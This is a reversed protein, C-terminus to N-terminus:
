DKKPKSNISVVSSWWSTATKADDRDADDADLSTATTTGTADPAHAFNNNNSDHIERVRMEVLVHTGLTIWGPRELRVVELGPVAREAARVVLEVDRNWWCGFRAFHQRASRDLLGNVLEYWSRGHELLVIRGTEPKVAAAMRSLLLIPDRVSCLGFTQIVTDYKEPNPNPQQNSSSSPPPPPPPPLAIQADAKLLRIRNNALSIGEESGDATKSALRSFIPKKPIQEVMFPVVQRIRTLALDLMPPSIDLGTFSRIANENQPESVTKKEKKGDGGGKGSWGFWSSKEKNQEAPKLGATVASWDYYDFNRGAGVAVELVHGRALESGIHRRLKTIGFRWESKDLHQDFERPSQITPRGTPMEPEQGPTWHEAPQTRWYFVLSSTFFSICVVAAGAGFLPFWHDRILESIPRRKDEYGSSSSSSSSHLTPRPVSKPASESAVKPKPKAPQYPLPKPTARQQGPPPPPPQKATAFRRCGGDIWKFGNGKIRSNRVLSGRMVLNHPYTPRM